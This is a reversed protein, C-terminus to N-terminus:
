VQTNILLLLATSGILVGLIWLCLRLSHMWIRPWSEHRSAAYVLSISVVLPLILWYVNAPAITM